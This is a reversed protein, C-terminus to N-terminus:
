HRTIRKIYWLSPIVKSGSRSESLYRSPMSCVRDWRSQYRLCGFVAIRARNINSPPNGLDVAHYFQGDDGESLYTVPVTTAVILTIMCLLM